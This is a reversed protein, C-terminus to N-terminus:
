NSYALGGMGSMVRLVNYNLAYVRVQATRFGTVTSLSVTLQLTAKDIRSFNCTGSPQHEEPRLAFSYCNVGTSPTRCHHQYPQVRDFYSGERETFRDQGNLQLKCVEVPNKGECRVGSDLIVKALLYNVGADFDLAQGSTGSLSVQGPFITTGEGPVQLQTNTGGLPLTGQASVAGSGQTLLSMIIGETSFDDSYNFPQQGGVSSIWAQYSCDVFSDRQVVWFLEKVPHNFNLQVKNSSSTISEAGTFQVQEILYEHSQQAFRRREETDLYV